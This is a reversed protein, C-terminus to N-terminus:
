WNRGNNCSSNCTRLACPCSIVLVAIGSTLAFEFSQGLILWVITALIAIGIVVPVFIGSVKDAIKAIPAKSSGAEEVLKIIQSLTTNEGVKTAKIKLYGNKNITGSIVEDNITKEVPISEGTISAQDLWSTGEIIIGDVPINSGPRIEVIDGQLIDETEIEVQKGDRIVIATKPAM